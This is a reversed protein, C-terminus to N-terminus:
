DNVRIAQNLVLIAHGLFTLDNGKDDIIMGNSRINAKPGYGRVETNSTMRGTDLDADAKETLLTYGLDPRVIVVRGSLNVKNEDRFFEGENSRITIPNGSATDVRARPSDMNILNPRDPNETATEALVIFDNGGSTVGKYSAGKLEVNRSEPTTATEAKIQVKIDAKKGLGLLGGIAIVAVGVGLILGARIARHRRSAEVMSKASSRDRKRPAFSFSKDTGAAEAKTTEPPTTETM